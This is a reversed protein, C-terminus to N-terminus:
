WGAAPLVYEELVTELSLGLPEYYAGATLVVVLGLEPVVYILQGGWGAARYYDLTRSGRRFSGLWWNFGYGHLSGYGSPLPVAQRTSAEVWGSSLLRIGNWTGGNLYLAGFKAMDRPRLYAGGSAFTLVGGTAFRTWLFDEIGLPGFLHQDAYDVLTPYGSVRRVIEGAVNTDGSNYHFVSGPQTLVSRGLLHGIPDAARFMMYHSDRPDEFGYVFENWEFGSSFSLLQRLTVARNADTELSEYDPFWSFVPEDLSPILGQDWAVGVLASTLSKSVSAVYHLTNRDFDRRVSDLSAPVLDRGPWYREFVLKGDKVILLSHLRHGRASAIHHLLDRLLGSDM